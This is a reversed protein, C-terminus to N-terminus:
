SSEPGEKNRPSTLRRNSKVTQDHGLRLCDLQDHSMYERRAVGTRWCMRTTNYTMDKEGKTSMDPRLRIGNGTWTYLLAADSHFGLYSGDSRRFAIQECSDALSCLSPWTEPVEDRSDLELNVEQCSDPLVVAKLIDVLGGIANDESRLRSWLYTRITWTVKRWKLHSQFFHSFNRADLNVFECHLHYMDVGRQKTIHQLKIDDRHFGSRIDDPNLHHTTSRLPIAHTEYYILRCTHLLSTSINTCRDHGPRYLPCLGYIKIPRFLDTVQVIAYQYILMRIEAPLVSFLPSQTQSHSNNPEIDALARRALRGKRQRYYRAKPLQKSQPM